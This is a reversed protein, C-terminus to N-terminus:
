QRGPKRPWIRSWPASSSRTVCLTPQPPQLNSFADRSRPASVRAGGGRVGRAAGRRASAEVHGGGRARRRAGHAWGGLARGRASRGTTWAGGGRAALGAGLPRTEPGAGGGNRHGGKRLDANGARRKEDRQQRFLQRPETNLLASTTTASLAPPRGRRGSPDNGGELTALVAQGGAAEEVLYAQKRHTLQRQLQLRPPQPRVLSLKRGPRSAAVTGAWRAGLRMAHNEWSIRWGKGRSVPRLSYGPPRRLWPLALGPRSDREPRRTDKSVQSHASRKHM